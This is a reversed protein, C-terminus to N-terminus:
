KDFYKETLKKVIGRKEIKQYAAELRQVLKPDSHESIAFTRVGSTDLPYIKQFNVRLVEPEDKAMLRLTHKLVAEDMAIYTMRKGIIKRILTRDDVAEDAIAGMSIIDKEWAYGRTIGILQGKFDEKKASTIKTSKLAYIWINRPLRTGIWDLLPERQPSIAAPYLLVNKGETAMKYARKWPVYEIQVHELSPKKGDKALEKLLEQLIETMVGAPKGNEGVYSFPPFEATVIQFSPDYKDQSSAWGRSGALSLVLSFVINPIKSSQM